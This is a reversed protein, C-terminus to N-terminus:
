HSAPPSVVSSALASDFISASFPLFVARPAPFCATGVLLEARFSRELDLRVQLPTKRTDECASGDGVSISKTKVLLKAEDVVAKHM